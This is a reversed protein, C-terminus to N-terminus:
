NRSSNSKESSNLDMKAGCSMCYKMSFSSIRLETDGCVSCMYEFKGRVYGGKVWRGHRVPAVDEAEPLKELFFKLRLVPYTPHELVCKEFGEIVKVRDLYESM